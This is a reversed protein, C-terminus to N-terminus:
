GKGGSSVERARGLSDRAAEGPPGPNTTRMPMQSRLRSPGRYRNLVRYMVRSRRNQPIPPNRDARGRHFGSLRSARGAALLRASYDNGCRKKGAAVGRRSRAYRRIDLPADWGKPVTRLTLGTVRQAPRSAAVLVVSSRGLRCARATDPSYSFYRYNSALKRSWDQLHRSIQWCRM